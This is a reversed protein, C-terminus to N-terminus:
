NVSITASTSGEGDIYAWCFFLIVTLSFSDFPIQFYLGELHHPKVFCFEWLSFNTVIQINHHWTKIVAMGDFSMNRFSNVFFADNNPPWSYLVHLQLVERRFVSKGMCFTLCAIFNLTDCHIVMCYYIDNTNAYMMM